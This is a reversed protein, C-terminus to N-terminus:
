IVLSFTKSYDIGEQQTFGRAVLRAKYREINGDSQHKIRYVWEDFPSIACPGLKTPTYPRFKRAYLV